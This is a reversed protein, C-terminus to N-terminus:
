KTKQKNKSYLIPIVVFTVLSLCFISIILTTNSESVEADGFAPINQNGIEHFIM